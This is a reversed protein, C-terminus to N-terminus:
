KDDVKIHFKVDDDKVSTVNLTLGITSGDTATLTCRMTTGEVGKLDGPCTIKKPRQGVLKTLQDSVEKEVKKRDVSVDGSSFSCGAVLAAACALAVPFAIRM